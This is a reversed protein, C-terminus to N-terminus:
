VCVCVCVQRQCPDYKEVRLAVFRAVCEGSCTISSRHSWAVTIGRLKIGYRWQMGHSKDMCQGKARMYDTARIMVSSCLWPNCAFSLTCPHCHCAFTAHLFGSM